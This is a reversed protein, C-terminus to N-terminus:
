RRSGTRDYRSIRTVSGDEARQYVIEVTEDPLPTRYLSRVIRAEADLEHVQELVEELRIEVRQARGDHEVLLSREEAAPAAPSQIPESSTPNPWAIPTVQWSPAM